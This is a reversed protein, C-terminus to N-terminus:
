GALLAPAQIPQAQCCSHDSLNVAKGDEKCTGGSGWGADLNDTPTEEIKLNEPTIESLKWFKCEVFKGSVKEDREDWGLDCM